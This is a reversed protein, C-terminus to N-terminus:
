CQGTSLVLPLDLHDGPNVFGFSHVLRQAWLLGPQGTIPDICSVYYGWVQVPLGPGTATFVTAPWTWVTRGDVNLGSYTPIPLSRGELGAATPSTLDALTTTPSPQYFNTFLSIQANVAPQQMAWIVLDSMTRLGAAPIVPLLEPPPSSPSSIPHSAFPSYGTRDAKQRPM